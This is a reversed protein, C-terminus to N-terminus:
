GRDPWPQEKKPWGTSSNMGGLTGLDTVVFQGVVNRRWLAAHETLDSMLSLDGSVWGNNTVGGYGDGLSGGLTGLNIVTYHPWSASATEAEALTTFGALAIAIFAIVPMAPGTSRRM